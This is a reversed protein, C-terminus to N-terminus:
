MGVWILDSDKNNVRGTTRGREEWRQIDWGPGFYTDEQENDDINIISCVFVFAFPM